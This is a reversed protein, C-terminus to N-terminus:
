RDRGHEKHKGMWPMRMHEKSRDDYTKRDEGRLGQLMRDKLKEVWEAEPVRQQRRLCMRADDMTMLLQSRELSRLARSVGDISQNDTQKRLHSLFPEPDPGTPHQLYLCALPYAANGKHREPAAFRVFRDYLGPETHPYHGTM